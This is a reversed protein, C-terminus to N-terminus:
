AMRGGPSLKGMERYELHIARELHEHSLPVGEQAALFAARLASNRIYGGSMPFKRALDAFDFDGKTPAEPPIHAAWLRARMEEDPFPFELRLSLRRKFANDISGEMNTTLIAVGEFTDFRQLLYNVELNAYRDVSSKVETRKAFLSDAEDFLIVAQGDEAADFVKGLNKETEGIWKSTVNALDIRYLDLGLERAILGAVMTKGTGPAGYFLATLGRSTAMKDAFGWNEYVTRRHKVRGIFERISDIMEAPLAVQEWRALREVRTATEGLRSELHQKAAADLGAVWGDTPAGGSNAVLEVVTEITGPGVRYRAALRDLDQGSVEDSLVGRRELAQKWAEARQSELLTPLSYSLYGPDLPPNFEVSTRFGIPGAFTRFVERVHETTDVEDRSRNEMGSVCPLAGRLTARLLEDRLLRPFAEGKPLRETDIEALPIGVRKGLAALLSTRGFGPRGRIVLRPPSRLRDKSLELVVDRKIRAPLLLEELDRDAHHITTVSGPGDSVLANGSLRALLVRDVSLPAFLRQDPAVARERILGNALLPSGAELEAAIAIRERPDMGSLVTEVLARDCLPRAEDNSLIGFLRAAEFRLSPAVVVSIIQTATASLSFQRAIDILPLSFGAALSAKVRNALNSAVQEVRTRAEDLLNPAASARAGVLARVESEFPLSDGAPLSLAGSDWANAIALAAQAVVLELVDSLHEAADVYSLVGSPAVFERKPYLPRLANLAGKPLEIPGIDYDERSDPASKPSSVEAASGSDTAPPDSTEAADIVSESEDPQGDGPHVVRLRNPEFLDLYDIHYVALRSSAEPYGCILLHRAKADIAIDLPEVPAVAEVLKRGYRLDYTSLVSGQDQVLALGREEAFAANVVSEIEMHHVISGSPRIVDFAGGDSEKTLLAIARGALVQAASVVQGSGPLRAKALPGRLVDVVSVDRGQCILVHSGHLSFAFAREDSDTPLLGADELTTLSLEGQDWRVLQSTRGSCIFTRAEGGSAVVLAREPGPEDFVSEAVQEGTLAHIRLGDPFLSVLEEGVWCFDILEGPALPVKPATGMADIIEVFVGDAGLHAVAAFRGNRSLAVRRRLLPRDAAKETVVLLNDWPHAASVVFATRVTFVDRFRLVQASARSM